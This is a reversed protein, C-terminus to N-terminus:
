CGEWLEWSFVSQVCWGKGGNWEDMLVMKRNSTCSGGGGGSDWSRERRLLLKFAYPADCSKHDMVLCSYDMDQLIEKLKTHMSCGWCLLILDHPLFSCNLYWLAKKGTLKTNIILRLRTNCKAYKAWLCGGLSQLRVSHKENWLIVQASDATCCTNMQFWRASEVTVDKERATDFGPIDIFYSWGCTLCLPTISKNETLLLELGRLHALWIALFRCRKQRRDAAAHDCWTTEWKGCM